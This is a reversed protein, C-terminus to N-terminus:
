NAALLDSREAPTITLTGNPRIRCVASALVDDSGPHTATLEIVTTRKRGLSVNVNPQLSPMVELSVTPGAPLHEASFADFCAKMAADAQAFAPAAALTAVALAIASTRIMKSM